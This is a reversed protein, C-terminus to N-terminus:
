FFSQEITVVDGPLLFTNLNVKVREEDSNVRIVYIKDDSARATFGEALAVAKSITLGPQFAYGGPKHVEGYIFFPRYELISVTVNPRLLYRGKLGSHILYELRSLTLGTVKLDGLFPYSIVGSDSLLVEVTLDEEDYVSILIRDGAGLKYDDFDTNNPAGFVVAVPILLLCFAAALQKRVSM